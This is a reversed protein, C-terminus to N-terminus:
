GASKDVFNLRLTTLLNEMERRPQEEVRSRLVEFVAAYADIAIRADDMNKQTKNTLANPLLGMGEWAKMALLSMFSTLLDAAPLAALPVAQPGADEKADPAAEAGPQGPEGAGAASEARAATEDPTEGSTGGERPTTEEVM